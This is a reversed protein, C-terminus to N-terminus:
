GKGSAGVTLKKGFEGDLQNFVHELADVVEPAAAKLHEVSKFVRQHGAELDKPVQQRMTGIYQEWVTYTQLYVAGAEKQVREERVMTRLEDLPRDALSARVPEQKEKVRKEAEETFAAVHVKLEEFEAEDREEATQSELVALRERDEDITAWPGTEDDENEPEEAKMEEMVAFYDQMFDKYVLEEVYTKRAADAGMTFEIEELQGDLIASADSDADRYQRVKRAKAALAKERISQHQFQNPLRCWAHFHLPNTCSGDQGEECEEAGPGVHVWESFRFLEQPSQGEAPSREPEPAPAEPTPATTEASAEM